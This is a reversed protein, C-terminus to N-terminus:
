SEETNIAEWDLGNWFEPDVEQPDRESVIQEVIDELVSVADNPSLRNLLETVSLRSLHERWQDCILDRIEQASRERYKPELRSDYNPEM